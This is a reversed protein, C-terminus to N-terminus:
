PAGNFCSVTEIDTMTRLGPPANLVAQIANLTIACTAVDGHVGGKITSDINPDGEILIRDRPDPEGVAARFILTIVEDGDRWGRGIQHVGRAQGPEITLDPTELRDEAMVPKIVDETRELTWGLKAAIMHMSETLGVHRLSGDDVKASFQQPTLGAGVKKQFPLRRLGANQFREVRVRRVSQCVGTMVAPLLDMLFGPNVGTGVVTAKHRKATEDIAKAVGPNTQWPYSLGECTSVINLGHRVIGTIQSQVSELSSGTTLVVIDAEVEGLLKKADTTVKIGELGSVEALEGLDRGAKRPDTDLAGVIKLNPREVAFRTIKCGIPGLGCQIIRTKHAM